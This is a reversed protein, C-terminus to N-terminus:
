PALKKSRLQLPAEHAVAHLSEVPSTKFTGLVQRFGENHISDLEKLHSWM